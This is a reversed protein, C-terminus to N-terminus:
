VRAFLHFGVSQTISPLLVFAVGSAVTSFLCSVLIWLLEEGVLDAEKKKLLFAQKDM